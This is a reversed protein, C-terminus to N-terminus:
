FASWVVRVICQSQLNGPVVCQAVVDCEVVGIKRRRWREGVRREDDLAARRKSLMRELHRNNCGGKGASPAGASVGGPACCQDQQGTPKRKRQIGEDERWVPTLREYVSRRPAATVAAAVPQREMDRHRRMDAEHTELHHQMTATSMQTIRLTPIVAQYEAPLANIIHRQIDRETPPQGEEGMRMAVHQVRAILTSASDGPKWTTNHMEDRLQDMRTQKAAEHRSIMLEWWWRGSGEAEKEMMKFEPAKVKLKFLQFMQADTYQLQENDKWKKNFEDEQIGLIHIGALSTRSMMDESWTGFEAAKDLVPAHQALTTFQHQQALTSPDM